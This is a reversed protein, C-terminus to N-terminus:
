AKEIAPSQDPFFVFVQFACTPVWGEFRRKSPGSGAKEPVKAQMVSILGRRSTTASVCFPNATPKEINWCSPLMFVMGILPTGPTSLMGAWCSLNLQGEICIKLILFPL